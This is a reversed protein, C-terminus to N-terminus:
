RSAAGAVPDIIGWTRGPAIHWIDINAAAM